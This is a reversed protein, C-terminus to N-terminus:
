GPSMNGAPEGTPGGSSGMDTGSGTWSGGMAGDLTTSRGCGWGGVGGVPACGMRGKETSLMRLGSNPRVATSRLPDGVNGLALGEFFARGAMGAAVGGPGPATATVGGADVAAASGRSGGRSSHGGLGALLTAESTVLVLSSAELVSEASSLLLM